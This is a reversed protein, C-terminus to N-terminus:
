AAARRPGFINILNGEPDRLMTSSREANLPQDSWVLEVGHQRLAATAAPLDDTEFVIAKYGLVDLHHPAPTRDVRRHEAQPRSVLEIRMGAAEIMAFDAGVADFRGRETVTFGLVTEYWAISADLDGTALAVNNVRLGQVPPQTVPRSQMIDQVGSISAAALPDGRHILLSRTLRPVPRTQLPDNGARAAKGFARALQTQRWRQRWITM